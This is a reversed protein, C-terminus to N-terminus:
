THLLVSSPANHVIAPSRRSHVMASSQASNGVLHPYYLAVVLL